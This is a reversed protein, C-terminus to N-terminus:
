LDGPFLFLAAPPPATSEALTRNPKPSVEPLLSKPLLPLLFDEGPLSRVPLCSRWLVVYPLRCYGPTSTEAGPELHKRIAQSVGRRPPPRYPAGGAHLGAKSTKRSNM